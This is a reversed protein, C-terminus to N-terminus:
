AKYREASEDKVPHPGQKEGLQRQLEEVRAKLAEIHITQDGIIVKIRENIREELTM